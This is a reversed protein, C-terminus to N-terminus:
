CTGTAKTIQVCLHMAKGVSTGGFKMVLVDKGIGGAAAEDDGEELAAAFFANGRIM